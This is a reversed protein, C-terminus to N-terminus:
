LRAAVGPFLFARSMCAISGWRWDNKAAYASFPNAEFLQRYLWLSVGKRAFPLNIFAFLSENAKM